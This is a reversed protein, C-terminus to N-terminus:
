LGFRYLRARKRLDKAGIWHPGQIPDSTILVEGDLALALRPMGNVTGPRVVVDAGRLESIPQLVAGCREFYVSASTGMERMWAQAEERSAYAIHMLPHGFVIELGERMLTGCDTEGWAWKMRRQRAGWLLLERQWEPVRKIKAVM